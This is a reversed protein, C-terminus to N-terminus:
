FVFKPHCLAKLAAIFGRKKRAPKLGQPGAAFQEAFQTAGSQVAEGSVRKL